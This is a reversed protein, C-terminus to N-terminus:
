SRKEQRKRFVATLGLVLTGFLLVSAPEPVAVNSISINAQISGDGTFTLLAETSVSVDGPNTPNPNPSTVGDPGNSDSHGTLTNQYVQTGAPVGNAPDTLLTFQITSASIDTDTTNSDATNLLSSVDPEDTDTFMAELTGAGASQADIQNFDQITPETSDAWGVATDSLTIGQFTAHTVSITGDVGDSTTKAAINGCAGVVASSCTVTLVGLTSVDITATVGNATLALEEDVAAFMQSSFALVLASTAALAFFPRNM